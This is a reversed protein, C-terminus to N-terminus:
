NTRRYCRNRFNNILTSQASIEFQEQPRYGAEYSSGSANIASNKRRSQIYWGLGMIPLGLTVSILSFVSIDSLSPSSSLSMLSAMLSATATSFCAGLVMLCSGIFPLIAPM